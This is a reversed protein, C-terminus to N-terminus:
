QMNNPDPREYTRAQNQAADAVSKASTVNQYVMKNPDTSDRVAVQRTSQTSLLSTGMIAQVDTDQLLDNIITSNDGSANPQMAKFENIAAAAKLLRGEDGSASADKLEQKWHAAFNKTAAGKGNAIQYLSGSNWAQETLKSGYSGGVNYGDISDQTAGILSMAGPALDHRGKQKNMFNNFGAIAAGTNKDGDAARAITRVQDQVDNYGTGTTALQQAAAIAQSRGYGVSVKAAAAAKEARARDFNRDAMLGRVAEQQNRYTLAHLADDNENVQSWRPNKMIQEQAALGAIQSRAQAGREGLGYRGEFGAGVGLGTRRVASSQRLRGKGTGTKFNNWGEARKTQRGKKARDFLGRSKDNVMGTLAGFAGMGARFAAPILFYPAIYATIQILLSFLGADLIDAFHPSYIFMDM